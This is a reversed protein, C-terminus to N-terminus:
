FHGLSKLALLAFNVIHCLLPKCKKKDKFNSFFILHPSRYFTRKKLNFFILKRRPQANIGFSCSIIALVLFNLESYWKM